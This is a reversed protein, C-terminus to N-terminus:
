WSSSHGCPVEIDSVGPSTPPGGSGPSIIFEPWYLRAAALGEAQRKRRKTLGLNALPPFNLAKAGAFAQAEATWFM